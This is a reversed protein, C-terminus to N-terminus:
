HCTSTLCHPSSAGVWPTRRCLILGVEEKALRTRAERMFSAPSRGHYAAHKVGDDQERSGDENNAHRHDRAVEVCDDGVGSELSRAVIMGFQASEQPAHRFAAVKM